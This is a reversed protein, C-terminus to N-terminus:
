RGTKVFRFSRTSGTSSVSTLIYMGSELDEISFALQYNGVPVHQDKVAVQKGSIDTIVFVADREARVHADLLLIDNVPNMVLSFEGDGNGATATEHIGTTGDIDIEWIGRGYTAARLKGTAYQIDLDTVSTNPMGAGYYMWTTMTDNMMFVGVDTGIYYDHFFSARNFIGCSVPVNPLSGSINTWSVGGNFSRYVKKTATYGGVTM